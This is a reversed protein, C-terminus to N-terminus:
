LNSVGIDRAWGEKQAKALAAWNQARGEPGGFPAHILFLDVYEAKPEDPRVYPNNGTYSSGAVKHLPKLSKRLVSYVEETSHPTHSPMYKTTIFLSSRPTSTSSIAKGVVVADAPRGISGCTQSVIKMGTDKPPISQHTLKLPSVM